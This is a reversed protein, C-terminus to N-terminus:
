VPRRAVIFAISRKAGVDPQRLDVFGADRIERALRQSDFGDVHPAKGLWRMTRLVPKLLPWSWGLCTTSSVFYGGPKLLRHMQRLAAPRDTVLHLLSYACVVDLSADAFASLGAGLAGLHFEVNRVQETAAKQRAIDIMRSSADLGHVAQAHPALRLALSGTGCGIDLVVSHQGILSATVDIKREFSQPNAVPQRAYREAIGNWFEPDAM